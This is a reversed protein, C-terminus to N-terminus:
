KDEKKGKARKNEQKKSARKPDVFKAHIERARIRENQELIDGGPAEDSLKAFGNKILVNSFLETLRLEEGKEFSMRRIGIGDLAYSGSKIIEIKSLSM